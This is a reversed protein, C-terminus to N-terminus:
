QLMNFPKGSAMLVVDFMNFRNYTVHFGEFKLKLDIDDHHNKQLRAYPRNLVWGAGGLDDEDCVKVVICDDFISYVGESQRFRVVAGVVMDEATALRTHGDNKFM